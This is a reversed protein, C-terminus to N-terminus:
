ELGSRLVNEHLNGWEALDHRQKWETLHPGIPPMPLKRLTEWFGDRRDCWACVPYNFTLGPPQTLCARHSKPQGCLVCSDAYVPVELHYAFEYYRTDDYEDRNFGYPQKKAWQTWYTEVINLYYAVDEIDLDIGSRGPAWDKTEEFELDDMPWGLWSSYTLPTHWTFNAEPSGLTTEVFKLEAIGKGNCHYCQGRENGDWDIYIGKRCRNCPVTAKVPRVQILMGAMVADRIAYNSKLWYVAKSPRSFGDTRVWRNLVDLARLATLLDPKM